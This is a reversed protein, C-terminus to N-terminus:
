IENRMENRMSALLISLHQFSPRLFRRGSRGSRIVRRLLWKIKYRKEDDSECSIRVKNENM